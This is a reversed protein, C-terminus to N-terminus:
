LSERTQMQGSEMGEMKERRELADETPIEMPQQQLLSIGAAPDDQLRRLVILM